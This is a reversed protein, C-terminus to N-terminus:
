FFNIMLPEWEPFRAIKGETNIIKIQMEYLGILDTPFYCEIEGESADTVSAPENSVEILGSDIDILDFLVDKGTLDYKFRKITKPDMYEIYYLFPATDGTRVRYTTLAM